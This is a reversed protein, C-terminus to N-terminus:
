TSSVADTKLYFVPNKKNPKFDITDVNRQRM